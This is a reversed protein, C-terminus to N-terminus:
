GFLGTQPNSEGTARVAAKKERLSHSPTKTTPESGVALTKSSQLVTALLLVGPIVFSLLDAICRIIESCVLTADTTKGSPLLHYSSLLLIVEALLISVVAWRTSYTWLIWPTWPAKKDPSSTPSSVSRPLRICLLWGTGLLLLAALTTSFMSALALFVLILVLRGMISHSVEEKDGMSEKRDKMLTLSVMGFCCLIAPVGVIWAMLRDEGPLLQGTVCYSTGALEFAQKWGSWVGSEFWTAGGLAAGGFLLPFRAHRDVCTTSAVLLFAVMAMLAVCLKLALEVSSYQAISITLLTEVTFGNGISGM